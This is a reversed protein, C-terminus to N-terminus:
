RKKVSKKRRKAVRRHRTARKSGRRGPTPRSPVIPVPEVRPTENTTGITKRPLPLRIDIMRRLFPPIKEAPMLHECGADSMVRQHFSDATAAILLIPCDGKKENIQRILEQTNIEVADGGDQVYPSVVIAFPEPYEGFLRLSACQTQARRLAIRKEMGHDLFNHTVPDSSFVLVTPRGNM